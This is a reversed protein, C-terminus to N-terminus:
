GPVRRYTVLNGIETAIAKAFAQGVQMNPVVIQRIEVLPGNSILGAGGSPAALNAPAGGGLASFDGLMNGSWSSVAKTTEAIMGSFSKIIAANMDPIISQRVIEDELDKFKQIMGKIMANIEGLVRDVTIEFDLVGLEMAEFAEVVATKLEETKEDFIDYYGGAGTINEVSTKIADDLDGWSTIMDAVYTDTDDRLTGTDEGLTEAYGSMNVQATSADQDLVGWDGGLDGLLTGADDVFAGLVTGLELVSANSEVAAGSSAQMYQDWATGVGGLDDAIGSTAGATESGLNQLVGLVGSLAVGFIDELGSAKSGIDGLDGQVNGSATSSAVRLDGFGVGMNDLATSFKTEAGAADTGITSLSVGVGQAALRATVDLEGASAGIDGLSGGIGQAALAADKNLDGFDIGILKLIGGVWEFLEQAKGVVWDKAQTMWENMGRAMKAFGEIVKEGTTDTGGVLINIIGAILNAAAGFVFGLVGMIAGGIVQFIGLLLTGIDGIAASLFKKSDAVNGTLLAWAAQLINAFFGIVGALINVIGTVLTILGPLAAGIAGVITKVIVTMIAVVLRWLFYLIPAVVSWLNTFAEGLGALAEKLGSAEATSAIAEWAAAAMTKFWDLNEIIATVLAGVLLAILAFGAIFPAALQLFAGLNGAAVGVAAGFGSIGAIINEMTALGALTTGFMQLLKIFIAFVVVIGLIDGINDTLPKFMEAIGGGDEDGTFAKKIREMGAEIDLVFQNFREQVEDFMGRIDRGFQIADVVEPSINALLEPNESLFEGRLGAFFAKIVSKGQAFGEVSLELGETLEKWKRIAEEFADIGGSLDIGGLANAFEGLAAGAAGAAAGAAGAISDMLSKQQALLDLEAMYFGILGEHTDLQENLVDLQDEAVDVVKEQASEEEDLNVLQEEREHRAQVIASLQQLLPKGSKTIARIARTYTKNIEERLDRIQQLKDIEKDFVKQAANVRLQLELYRAIKDGMEGMGSSITDLVKQSIKGTEEFIALLETFAHRINLIGPVVDKEDMLGLKGLNRFYKGILSTIDSIVSFDASKFGKIYTEILNKGWNLIESLPGKKPPSSSAFFQAIANAISIAASIVAAMGRLMGAAFNSILNNGWSQAANAYSLFTDRVNEMADQAIFALGILAVGVSAILGLLPLVASTMSGIGVAFNGIASIAIGISFALTGLIMTLPGLIALLAAGALIAIRVPKDLEAFAETAMQIAPVLFKLVTNVMPLFTDGLTMGLVKLNNMLVGIQAQTSSMARVYEDIISTGTQFEERAARINPILNEELQNALLIIGRAARVGFIEKAIAMRESASEVDGIAKIVGLLGGVFDEDFARRIQDVDGEIMDALKDAQTVVYTAMRTFMTGSELAGVGLEFMTAIFAALDAGAIKFGAAASIANTMGDAINKASATTTNELMNVTNALQLMFSAAEDTSVGLATALRGFTQIADKAAIDTTQGMVEAVRVFKLINDVGRVGLQGAQEALEGLSELPTAVDQALRRLEGSLTGATGTLRGVQWDFLDTTKQAKVLADDFLIAADAAAKIAAAIPISIFATALFSVGQLAQGMQRLGVGLNNIPGMLLGLAAGFQGTTKSASRATKQVGRIGKQTSTLGAVAGQAQSDLIIVIKASQPPM